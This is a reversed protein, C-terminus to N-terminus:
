HLYYSSDYIVQYEKQAKLLFSKIKEDHLNQKQLLELMRVRLQAYYLHLFSETNPIGINRNKWQELNSHIIGLIKEDVFLGEENLQIVIHNYVTDYASLEKYREILDNTIESCENLLAQMELGLDPRIKHNEIEYKKDSLDRWYENYLSDLEAAEREQIKFVSLRLSDKLFDENHITGSNQNFFTCGAQLIYLTFIFQRMILFKYQM